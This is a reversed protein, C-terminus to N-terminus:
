KKEYLVFYLVCGSFTSFVGLVRLFIVLFVRSFMTFGGSFVDGCPIQVFFDIGVLNNKKKEFGM